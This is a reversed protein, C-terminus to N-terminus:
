GQFIVRLRLRWQIGRQRNRAAQARERAAWQAALWADEEAHSAARAADALTKAWIANPYREALLQALTTPCLGM